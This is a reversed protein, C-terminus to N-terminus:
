NVGDSLRKRAISKRRVFLYDSQKKGFNKTHIYTCRRIDRSVHLSGHPRLFLVRLFMINPSRSLSCIRLCLCLRLFYTRVLSSCTHVRRTGSSFRAVTFPFSQTRQPMCKQLINMCVSPPQTLPYLSSSFLLSFSLSFSFSCTCIFSDSVTVM